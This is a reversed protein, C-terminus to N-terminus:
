SSVGEENGCESRCVSESSSDGATGGCLGNEGSRKGGVVEFVLFREYGRSDREGDGRADDVSRSLFGRNNVMRLFDTVVRSFAPFITLVIRKVGTVFRVVFALNGRPFVFVSPPFSKAPPLKM